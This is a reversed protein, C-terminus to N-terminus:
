SFPYPVRARLGPGMLKMNPTRYESIDEGAFGMINGSVGQIPLTRPVQPPAEGLGVVAVVSRGLRRPGFQEGCRAGCRQCLHRPRNAHQNLVDNSGRLRGPHDGKNIM